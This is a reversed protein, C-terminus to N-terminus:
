NKLFLKRGVFYGLLLVLSVLYFQLGGGLFLGAIVPIAAIILAFLVMTVDKGETDIAGPTKSQKLEDADITTIKDQGFRNTLLKIFNDMVQKLPGTALQAIYGEVLLIVSGNKNDVVTGLKMGGWGWVSPVTMSIRKGGNETVDEKIDEAKIEQTALLVQQYVEEQTKENVKYAHTIKPM